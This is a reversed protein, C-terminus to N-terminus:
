SITGDYQAQAQRNPALDSKIRSCERRLACTRHAATAAAMANAAVAQPLDGGGEAVGVPPAPGTTTVGLGLGLRLGLVGLGLALGLGLRLGLLRPGLRLGLRLRLRLGLGLPLVLRLRLGLRLLRLGLRLLGLGVRLELGRGLRLGM